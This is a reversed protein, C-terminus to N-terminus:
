RSERRMALTLLIGIAGAVLLGVTGPEPVASVSAGPAALPPASPDYFVGLLTVDDDDVFGNYDFDGLAWSPQPVGPAYTAGVITVDDDNVLGDLNADGTRTFAILLSTDDVPQRRFTTLSGIPLTSNEAYGVSRSEPETMVAAAAASSTIGTGTWSAGIGPGGRGSLIKERVTIVPSNGSYEIIAANDTLDLIATPAMSFTGSVRIPIPVGLYAVLTEGAALNLETIQGDSQIMNSTNAGSITAFQFDAGRADAFSLNANTLTAYAFNVHILAAHSLNAGTLNAGSIIQENGEEDYAV